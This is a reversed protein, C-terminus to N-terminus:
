DAKRLELSVVLNPSMLINKNFSGDTVEINETGTAGYINSLTLTYSGPILNYMHVPVLETNSNAPDFNSLIVTYKVRSVTAIGQVFTGEGDIKLKTKDLSNLMKLAYYRPKATGDNKLIGWSPTAGDKIEFAFALHVDKDIMKKITTVTHAAGQQTEIVSNPNSDYGWESIIRPISRYDAFEPESLWQDVNDLDKSFEEPDKSYKHWSIFDLRLNNQKVFRLFVQFWNKYPATIAPGGINFENTNQANKAGLASYFYLTKYDKSGGYLSWKGFTELDPENWVEYYTDNLRDGAVTGNCLVTSKGSYREVTKQVITSWESWKNPAGILTGDSSIALPMYGLSFFPRAGTAYIDCVTADLNSWNFTLSGNPARNVVDYFDYVHDIRIYNAQLNALQPIVNALMHKGPEEGGQALAKWSTNLLGVPQAADISINAKVPAAKSVYMFSIVFIIAVVCALYLTVTVKIVRAISMDHNHM